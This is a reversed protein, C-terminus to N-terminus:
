TFTWEIRWSCITQQCVNRDNNMRGELVLFDHLPTEVDAIDEIVGGRTGRYTGVM